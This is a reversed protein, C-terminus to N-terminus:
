SMVRNMQYPNRDSISKQPKLAAINVWITADIFRFCCASVWSHDTCKALNQSM